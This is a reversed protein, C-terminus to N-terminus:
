FRYLSCLLVVSVRVIPPAGSPVCLYLFVVDIYLRYFSLGSCVLLFMYKVNYLAAVACLFPFLSVMFDDFLLFLVYRYGHDYPLLCPTQHHSLLGHCLNAAVETLCSFVWLPGWAPGLLPYLLALLRTKWWAGSFLHHPIMSSGPGEWYLSCIVSLKRALATHATVMKLVEARCVLLPLM